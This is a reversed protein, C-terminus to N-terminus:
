GWFSRGSIAARRLMARLRPSRSRRATGAPSSKACRKEGADRTPHTVLAYRQHKGTRHTRGNRRQTPRRRLHHTELSRATRSWDISPGTSVVPKAASSGDDSWRRLCNIGWSPSVELLAAVEHSSARGEDIAIARVRLDNSYTKVMVRDKWFSDPAGSEGM